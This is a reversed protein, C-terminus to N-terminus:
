NGSPATRQLDVWIGGGMDTWRRCFSHDESLFKGNTKDILCNFLAYSWRRPDDPGTEFESKYRLDQYREIMSLLLSRKLLTLDAGVWRAKVFGDKVQAPVEAEFSVRGRPMAATFDQDFKLLRFIHDPEFGKDGDALLLHTASGDRLFQTVIGQRARTLLSDGWQAVSNLQIDERGFCAKQFQLVSQTYLSTVQGGYCPTGIVLNAKM